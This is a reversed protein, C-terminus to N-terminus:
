QLEKYFSNLNLLSKIKVEAKGKSVNKTKYSWTTDHKRMGLSHVCNVM